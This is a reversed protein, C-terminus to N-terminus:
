KMECEVEDYYLEDKAHAWCVQVVVRGEWCTYARLRAVEVRSEGMASQQLGKSYVKSTSGRRLSAQTM